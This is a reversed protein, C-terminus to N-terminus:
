EGQGFVRERISPKEKPGDFGGPNPTTYPIDVVNAHGGSLTYGYRCKESDCYYNIKELKKNHHVTIVRRMPAACEVCILDPAMIPSLAPKTV